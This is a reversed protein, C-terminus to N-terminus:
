WPGIKTFSSPSPGACGGEVAGVVFVGLVVARGLWFRMEIAFVRRTMPRRAM